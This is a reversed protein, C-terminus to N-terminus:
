PNIKTKLKEKAAGAFLLASDTMTEINDAVLNFDVIQSRREKDLLDNVPLQGPALFVLMALAGAFFAMLMRLISNCFNKM